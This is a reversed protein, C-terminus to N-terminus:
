TSVEMVGVREVWQRLEAMPHLLKNPMFYAPRFGLPDQWFERRKGEHAFAWGALKVIPLEVWANVFPVDDPDDDHLILRYDAKSGARVDILGGVDRAEFNNLAGCWFLNLWLATALEGCAGNVDMDWIRSAGNRPKRGAKMNSTLRMVAVHAAMSIQAYTLTVVIPTPGDYM